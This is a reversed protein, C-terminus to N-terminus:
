QWWLRFVRTSWGKWSLHPRGGKPLDKWQIKEGLGTQAYNQFLNPYYRTELSLDGNFTKAISLLVKEEEKQFIAEPDEICKYSLGSMVTVMGEKTIKQKVEPIVEIKKEQILQQLVENFFVPQPSGEVHLYDTQTITKKYKQFFHGDAYYLMKCLSIRNLPRSTKQCFFLIAATLRTINFSGDLLRFVNHEQPESQSNNKQELM